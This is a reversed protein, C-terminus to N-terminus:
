KCSTGVMKVSAVDFDRAHMEHDSTTGKLEDGSTTDKPHGTVAVQQNVFRDLDHGSELNYVVGIKSAPATTTSAHSGSTGVADATTSSDATTTPATTSSAIGARAMKAGTLWFGGSKNKQLCGTITVDKRDTTSAQATTTSATTTSQAAIPVTFGLAAAACVAIMTQKM